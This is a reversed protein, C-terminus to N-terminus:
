SFQSVFRLDGSQFHRVDEIGYKLMVLRNFGCGFAFGTYEKPDLGAEQLVHPHVMGAGFVELWGTEKCLRCGKGSCLFCTVEGNVGPEVFPYFKPRLRVETKEGYLHTAMALLTAKLNAFSIGKGVMLGEFQYFTHEHRVDTAENRFVRGITVMKLPAGYERLMRVQYSTTQTRMVWDPHDKIYFTDQMDRAPHNPPVNLATFNFYDSELEPSQVVRFGLRSFFDELDYRLTTLPHLSGNPESPIKPETIDITETALRARSGESRIKREVEQQVAELETKLVNLEQGRMRREEPSLSGLGKLLETLKGNKRGFYLETFSALEAETTINQIAALYEQRFTELHEHM